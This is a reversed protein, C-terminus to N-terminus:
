SKRMNFTIKETIEIAAQLRPPLAAHIEGTSMTPTAGTIEKVYATLTNRNVNPKILDELGEEKLAYVLDDTDGGAWLKRSVYLTTGDITTKSIGNESWYALLEIEAEKLTEKLKKVEGDLRRIKQKLSIVNAEIM